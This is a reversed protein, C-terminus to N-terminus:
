ILKMLSKYVALEVDAYDKSNCEEILSKLDELKLTSKNDLVLLLQQSSNSLKKALPLVSKLM